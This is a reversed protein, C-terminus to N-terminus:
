SAPRGAEYFAAGRKNLSIAVQQIDSRGDHHEISIRLLGEHAGEPVGAATASLELRSPAAAQGSGPQAGLAVGAELDASLWSPIDILRWALLGSGDNHIELPVAGSELQSSTLELSQAGLRVQPAGFLRARVSDDSEGMPSVSDTTAISGNPLSMWMDAFADSGTAIEAYIQNWGAHFIDPDLPGGESALQGITPLQVARAQWLSSGGVDPPNLVCGLVLEQYPYGNRAGRCDYAAREANQGSDAPHNMSAWGNYAWLAYYWSEIFRPDRDGIAPFFQDNWKQALIQAGAAINYAFHTGVLAEYRSPLDGDHLFSSTVQMIGYGCDFSILAPGPSGYPVQSATQTLRSEIWSIAYLIEVPITADPDPQAPDGVLLPPLQFDPDDPFLENSAALRLADLYTGRDQEAEFSQFSYAAGGGSYRCSTPAAHVREGLLGHSVGWSCAVLLAALWLVRLRRRTM